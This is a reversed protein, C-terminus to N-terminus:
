NKFLKHGLENMVRREDPRGYREIDRLSARGLIVKLSEDSASLENYLWDTLTDRGSSVSINPPLGVEAAILKLYQNFTKNAVTPLGAWGGYKDVVDQVEPFVPIKAEQRTKGRKWKIWVIGNKDAEPQWTKARASKILGQLDAYHLGTRCHIKFLDAYRQMYPNDFEHKCLKWFDSESIPNPVTSSDPPLEADELPDFQIKKRAKLWHTVRKVIVARARVTSDLYGQQHLWAVLDNYRDEDFETALIGRIKRYKLFELLLSKTGKLNKITNYSAGKIYRGTTKMLANLALRDAILEGFGDMLSMATGINLFEEKIRQASVVVGQAYYRNWINQLGVKTQSLKVNHVGAEPHTSKVVSRAVDWDELRLRINTSGIEVTKGKITIKTYITCWGPTRSAHRFFCIDMNPYKMKNSARWAMRTPSLLLRAVLGTGGVTGGFLYTKSISATVAQFVPM